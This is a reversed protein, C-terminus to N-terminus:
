ACHCRRSSWWSSSSQWLYPEHNQGGSVAMLWCVGYSSCLSIYFSKFPHLKPHVAQASWLRGVAEFPNRWVGRDHRRVYVLSCVFSTSAKRCRVVSHQQAAAKALKLPATMTVLADADGILMYSQFQSRNVAVCINNAITAAFQIIEQM